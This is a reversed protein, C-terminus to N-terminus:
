KQCPQNYSLRWWDNIQITLVHAWTYLRSAFRNSALERSSSNYPKDVASHPPCQHLPGTTSGRSERNDQSFSWLKEDLSVLHVTQGSKSRTNTKQNNISLPQSCKIKIKKNKILLFRQLPPFYTYHTAIGDLLHSVGDRCITLVPFLSVQHAIVKSRYNKDHM